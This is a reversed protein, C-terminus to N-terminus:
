GIECKTGSKTYFPLPVYAGSGEKRDEITQARLDIGTAPIIAVATEPMRICAISDRTIPMLDPM